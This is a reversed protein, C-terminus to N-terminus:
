SRMQELRDNISVMLSNKNEMAKSLVVVLIRTTNETYPMPFVAIHFQPSYRLYQFITHEMSDKFAQNIASASALQTGVYTIISQLMSSNDANSENATLLTRGQINTRNNYYYGIIIGDEIIAVAIINSDDIAAISECIENNDVIPEVDVMPIDICM